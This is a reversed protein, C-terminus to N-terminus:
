PRLSHLRARLRARKLDCLREPVRVGDRRWERYGPARVVVDYTGARERAAGRALITSDAYEGDRAILVSRWQLEKSLPRGTRADVPRVLVSAQAWGYGSCRDGLIERRPWPLVILLLVSGVVLALPRKWIRARAM